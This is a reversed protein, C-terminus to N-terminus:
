VGGAAGPRAAAPARGPGGQGSIREIIQHHGAAAPADVRPQLPQLGAADQDSVLHYVLRSVLRWRLRTPDSEHELVECQERVEIRERDHLELAQVLLLATAHTHFDNSLYGVRVRGTRPAARPASAPLPAVAGYRLRAHETFVRRQMAGDAGFEQFAANRRQDFLWQRTVNLFGFLEHFERPRLTNWQLDSM